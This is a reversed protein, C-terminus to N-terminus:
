INEGNSYETEVLHPVRARYLLTGHWSILTAKSIYDDDGECVCQHHEDHVDDTHHECSCSIITIM